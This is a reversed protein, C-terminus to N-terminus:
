CNAEQYFSHSCQCFNDFDVNESSQFSVLTEYCGSYKKMFFPQIETFLLVKPMKAKEIGIGREETECHRQFGVARCDRYGHFGPAQYDSSPVFHTKSSRLPGM